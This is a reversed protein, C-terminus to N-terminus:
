KLYKLIEDGDFEILDDLLNRPKKNQKVPSAGISRYYDQHIPKSFGNLFFSVIKYWPSQDVSKISALLGTFNEQLEKQSAIERSITKLLDLGIIKEEKFDWPNYNVTIFHGNKLDMDRKILNLFSSKGSGWKGTISINFSKDNLTKELESVISKAYDTRGFSKGDEEKEIPDDSLFGDNHLKLYM